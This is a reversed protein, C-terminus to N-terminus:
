CEFDGIQYWIGLILEFQSRIKIGMPALLVLALIKFFVTSLLAKQFNLGFFWSFGM